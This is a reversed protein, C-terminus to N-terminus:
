DEPHVPDVYLWTDSLFLQSESYDIRHEHTKQKPPPRAKQDWLGLHKLFKKIVDRHKKTIFMIGTRSLHKM